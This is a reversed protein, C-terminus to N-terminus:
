QIELNVSHLPSTAGGVEMIACDLRYSGPPVNELPVHLGIPVLPKGKQIFVTADVWGSAELTKSTKLDVIRYGVQLKPPNADTLHPDFGQVYLALKDTKKFHYDGAPTLELGGVILPTRDAILEADLDGGNDAVREFTDSLIIGSLDLSNGNIADIALPTEYKGFNQGGSSLVVELRYQGPVIPFQNQYRMPTEHFQKLEDKEFTLNVDDSFRAGVSGDPRYAIGLVNVDAHYKGKVKDFNVSSSPVEMSVNVRAENSSSFLYSAELTGGMGGAASGAALEEMHKEIPQGALIDTPKVNCYGSRARVETGGRDVKVRLVHCSGEASNEPAFGLLYYENQEHAIKDLGSIFDNTNLIPFGGTGSALQYLM